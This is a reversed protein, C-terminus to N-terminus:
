EYSKTQFLIERYLDYIKRGIRERSFRGSVSAKLVEPDYEKWSDLMKEIAMELQEDNAKDILMGSEPTVIEEPGGSITAIVPKGFALSEGTVVSFTETNSNVVIFNVKGIFDYVQENTKRGHFFVHTNLIGAAEAINRLMNEDPGGGIIHYEFDNRKQLLRATVRIVASINKQEDNLDAITLFIIKNRLASEREFPIDIINPVIQMNRFGLTEMSNKLSQSVVLLRAAKAAVFKATLKYWFPKKSFKNNSFGTWHETILFPIRNKKALLYGIIASRTLMNSHIMDPRGFNKIVFHWGRMSAFYFKFLNVMKLPSPHYYIFFQRVNKEESIYFDTIHFKPNIRTVYLLAVDAYLAVAQAHKKVFVGLQPDTENPYWKTIFLVKIRKEKFVAM